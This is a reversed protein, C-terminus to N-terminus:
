LLASGQLIDFVNKVSVMEMALACTKIEISAIGVVHNTQVLKGYIM